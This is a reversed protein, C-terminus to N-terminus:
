GYVDFTKGDSDCIRFASGLYRLDDFDAVLISNRHTPMGAMIGNNVHASVRRGDESITGNEPPDLRSPLKAAGNPPILISKM